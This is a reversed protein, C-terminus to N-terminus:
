ASFLSGTISPALRISLSRSGPVAGAPFTLAFNAAGSNVISGAKAQRISVGPPNVPLELEMADSEEDTLAEGTVKVHRVTQAKVRWDVKVETRSPIDVDQEAAIGPTIDLGELKVVVHAKKATTLYNHVIGSIVVEDGQVFFRPVALRLILNKRVITKLVAGGFREDPSVGRATARWTTLSDPFQIPAQAHGSSDTTLDAAWFATDPFAKRVKPQVLREPKLQALKSPARLMALQMRRTGAEGNFFFMLSNDTSVSDWEQGYFFNLIDPTEDKRIAYIAEDVVGLSFDARPIPKGDASTVDISYQATQGPLYQSRDTSIKVNLTHDSPPVKVRKQNQYMEGKRLFQASVFFGPEDDASVTYEFVATAGQSRILKRTRIDRGEVSVLVPTNSQGTVILIKATDGSHYAKKDPVIPVSRQPGGWFPEEAEGSVWIFASEELKRGEPTRASALVRYSGGGAPIKLDATASGDVGTSIDTASKVDAPSRDRWKWVAIELHVNTSVPHNDYDRAEVKFSGSISPQYFYRDPQVNLVFSGYTAILWGTGSIERGAKDTVRAEIRYRYDFKHESVTTPVTVSLKGESDLQGEAQAIEEGAEENANPGGEESEAEDPDYWLPFWYQNRYISYKVKANNVPEGFYYRADIVTEVSEGELVRPKQPTVRVEYEPKKYEQIEFNGGMETEGARVQIFYSGLAFTRTTSLEDHIIGNSNTTLNKQYIPKGDPDAIQVSLSQQSPIDYGVTAQQRLIGRFHVTDGPRYVPRDTYVLGTWNRNRAAFTWSSVDAFAVDEGRTAIVRLDEEATFNAPLDAFGDADTKVTTLNGNRVTSVIATNGIPEGTERDALFGMLHNRGAKTILVINSVVVITYARLNGTVAEVLFVGKSKVDIPITESGWVNRSSVRQVFSLVLQDRNLVPAEAFYTASTRPSAPAKKPFFSALHARPSETFQGRLNLRISRRLERKWDHIRELLTRRGAPRPMRGGFSHPDQITRFFETADKVRYVRIQVAAIQWGTLAITPKEHSGFTKSSSLSFYPEAESQCTVPAALTLAFLIGAFLPVAGRLRNTKM